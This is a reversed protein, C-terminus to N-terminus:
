GAVRAEFPLMFETPISLTGEVVLMHLFQFVSQPLLSVNQLLAYSVLSMRLQFRALKEQQNLTLPDEPLMKLTDSILITAWDKIAETAEQALKRFLHFNPPRREIEAITADM